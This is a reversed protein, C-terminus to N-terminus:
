FFRFAKDVGLADLITSVILWAGLVFILGLVVKMFMGSAQERAGPNGGKTILLFGAYAFVIASLPIMLYILYRIMRNVLNLLSTFTCPHAPTGDCPVLGDEIAGQDQNTNTQDSNNSNQNSSSSGTYTSVEETGTYRQDPFGAKNVAYFYKKGDTSDLGDLKFYFNEDSTKTFIFNGMEVKSEPDRYVTAVNTLATVSEGWVVEFGVKNNDLSSTVHIGGKFSTLSREATTLDVSLGTTSSSLATLGGQAFVGQPSAVLFSVLFLSSLFTITNRMM